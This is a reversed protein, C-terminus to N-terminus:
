RIVVIRAKASRGGGMLRAYYVGPRVQTHEGFDVVHCGAGLHGVERTLIRRGALDLVDLRVPSADPLSFAIAVSGRAPNPRAGQLAFPPVRPVEVWAEGALVEGGGETFRLRYGYRAGPTVDSDDWTLRGDGDASSAGLVSWVGSGATREVRVSFAGMGSVHWALHVGTLGAEASILSVHVPTAGGPPSANRFIMAVRSFINGVVLDPRTDLDFDGLAISTPYHRTWFGEHYILGAPTGRLLSVWGDWNDHDCVVAADDFGDRDFDAVVAARPDAATGYEVVPLLVRGAAGRLVSVGGQTDNWAADVILIDRHGDRDFDGTAITSPRGSRQWEETAIAHADAPAFAGGMNWYVDLTDAVPPYGGGLDRGVLLDALGDLDVDAGQVSTVNVALSVGSARAPGFAGKGDNLRVLVDGKVDAVALDPTGSGDFDASTLYSGGTYTAPIRLGGARDSLYVRVTDSIALVLDDAGDGDLDTTSVVEGPGLPAARAFGGTSQNRVIFTSAGDWLLMDPRGDPQLRATAVGWPRFGPEISLPALFTGTGDNMLARLRTGDHTGSLEALDPAGDGNFDGCVLGLPDSSEGPDSVLYLGPQSMGEAESGLVVVVHPCSGFYCEGQSMRIACDALGDSNFDAVQVFSWNPSGDLPLPLEKDFTGDGRGRYVSVGGGCAIVDALGDGTLDGAGIGSSNFGDPDVTEVPPAFTGDGHSLLVRLPTGDMPNKGIIRVVVDQRSDGDFDAVALCRSGFCIGVRIPTGIAFGGSGTNIFAVLSTDRVLVIDTQGDGTLDGVAVYGFFFGASGGTAYRVPEDFGSAGLSRYVALTADSARTAILDCRGDGDLDAAAGLLDGSELPAVRWSELPRSKNGVFITIAGAGGAAALDGVGDGDFDGAAAYSYGTAVQFTQAFRIPPAETALDAAANPLSLAAGQPRRAIEELWPQPDALVKELPVGRSEALDRLMGRLATYPRVAVASWAPQSVALILLIPWPSGRARM